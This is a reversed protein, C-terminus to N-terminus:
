TEAKKAKFISGCHNLASAARRPSGQETRPSGQETGLVQTSVAMHLDLELPDLVMERGKCACCKTPASVGM